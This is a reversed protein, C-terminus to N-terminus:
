NQYRKLEDKLREVDDKLNQIQIDKELIFDDMDAKYIAYEMALEIHEKTTAVIQPIEM